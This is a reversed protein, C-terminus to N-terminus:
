ECFEALVYKNESVVSDFNTNTLVWVNEEKRIEEDASAVGVLLLCSVLILSLQM